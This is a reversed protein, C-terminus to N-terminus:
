PAAVQSGLHLRHRRRVPRRVEAEDAAEGEVRRRLPRSGDGVNPGSTGQKEKKGQVGLKWSVVYGQVVALCSRRPPDRRRVPSGDAVGQCGPEQGPWGAPAPLSPPRLGCRLSRGPAPRPGFALDDLAPLGCVGARLHGQSDQVGDRHQCFFRELRRQTFDRPRGADDPNRPGTLPADWCLLVPPKLGELTSRMKEGPIQRFGDEASYMTSEKSPAPDIAVVRM